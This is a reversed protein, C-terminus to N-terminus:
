EDWGNRAITAPVSLWALGIWLPCGRPMPFSVSFCSTGMLDKVVREGVKIVRRCVMQWVGCSVSGVDSSVFDAHDAGM